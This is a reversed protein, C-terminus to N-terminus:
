ILDCRLSFQQVYFCFVDKFFVQQCKKKFVFCFDLILSDTERSEKLSSSSILIKINKQHTNLRGSNRFANVIFPFTKTYKNKM